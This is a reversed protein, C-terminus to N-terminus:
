EDSETTNSFVKNLFDKAAMRYPEDIAVRLRQMEQRLTRRFGIKVVRAVMHLLAVLAFPHRGMKRVVEGLYRVNIGQSHLM